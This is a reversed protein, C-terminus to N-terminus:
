VHARGIKLEFSLIKAKGNQVDPAKFSPEAVTNSPTLEVDEGGVQKWSITLTDDDPDIGQGSLTVIDGSKAINLNNQSNQTSPAIAAFSPSVIMSAVVLTM